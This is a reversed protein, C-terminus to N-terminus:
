VKEDILIGIYDAMAAYMDLMKKPPIERIIEDTQPDIVTVYYENLKEHFLEEEQDIWSKITTDIKESETFPYTVFSTFSDAEKTETQLRIGDEIEESSIQVTPEDKNTASLTKAGIGIIGILVIFLSIIILWVPWTIERVMRNQGRRDTM